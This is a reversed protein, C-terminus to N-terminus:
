AVVRLLLSSALPLKMVLLVVTSSLAISYESYNATHAFKGSPVEEQQDVIQIYIPFHSWFCYQFNYSMRMRSTEFKASATSVLEADSM